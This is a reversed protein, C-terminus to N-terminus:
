RTPWSIRGIPNDENINASGLYRSTPLEDGDPIFMLKLYFFINGEIDTTKNCEIQYPPGIRLIGHFNRLSSRWWNCNGIWDSIAV